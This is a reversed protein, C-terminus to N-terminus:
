EPSSKSQYGEEPPASFHPTMVPQHAALAPYPPVSYPQAKKWSM